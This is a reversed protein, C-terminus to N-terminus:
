IGLTDYLPIITMGYLICAIDAVVWEYRNKAFIGVLKMKQVPEEYYMKHEQLYSGLNEAQQYIERYTHMKLEREEVTEGNNQTPRLMINGCFDQDGYRQVTAEIVDKMTRIKPDPTSFLGKMTKPNRYIHSFGPEKSSEVPTSYHKTPAESGM